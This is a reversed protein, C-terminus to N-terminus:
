TFWVSDCSVLDEAMIIADKMLDRVLGAKSGGKLQGRIFDQYDSGKSHASIKSRLEQLRRMFAIDRNFHAYGPEALYRQLKSIGKEDPVKPLGAILKKENLQDVMVKCLLLIQAEFEADLENLPVRLRDLAHADSAHPERFLPWGVETDWSNNM